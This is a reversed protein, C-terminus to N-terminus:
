RQGQSKQRERPAMDAGRARTALFPTVRGNVVIDGASLGTGPMHDTSFGYENNLLGTAEGGESQADPGRWPCFPRKQSGMGTSSNLPRHYKPSANGERKENADAESLPHPLPSPTQTWTDPKLEAALKSLFRLCTPRGERSALKELAGQSFPNTYDRSSWDWTSTPYM